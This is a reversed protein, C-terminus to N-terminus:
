LRALRKRLWYIVVQCYPRLHNSHSEGNWDALWKELTARQFGARKRVSMVFGDLAAKRNNKLPAINLNLISNLEQDLGADTSIITGDDEFEILNEIARAPDAPNRSFDEEGKHTDCHQESRSQGENGRCAGLLNRYMLQESQYRAQSHWHEIKMAGIEPQIEALCYCCLGRQEKVLAERLTDKDPYNDYIAHPKQRHQTLSRPERGKIIRRM